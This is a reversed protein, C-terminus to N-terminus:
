DLWRGGDGALKSRMAGGCRLVFAQLVLILVWGNHMAIMM